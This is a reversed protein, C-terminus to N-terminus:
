YLMAKQLREQTIKAYSFSGVKPGCREIGEEGCARAVVRRSEAEIYKVIKSEM